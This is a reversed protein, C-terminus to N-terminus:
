KLTCREEVTGPSKSSRKNLRDVPNNVNPLLNGCTTIVLLRYKAQLSILLGVHRTFDYIEPLLELRTTAEQNALFVGLTLGVCVAVLNHNQNITSTSCPGIM